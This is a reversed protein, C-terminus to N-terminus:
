KLLNRWWGILSNSASSSAHSIKQSQSAEINNMFPNKLLSRSKEFRTRLKGDPGTDIFFIGSETTSEMDSPEEGDFVLKRRVSPNPFVAPSNVEENDDGPLEYCSSGDCSSDDTTDSVVIVEKAGELKVDEMGFLCALKNYEPEDHYYYAAAFANDKLIRMWVCDAALESETFTVGLKSAIETAAVM